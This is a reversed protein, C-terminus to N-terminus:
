LMDKIIGVVENYNEKLRRNYNKDIFNDIPMVEKECKEVIEGIPVEIEKGQGFSYNKFGDIITVTEKTTSFTISNMVSSTTFGCGQNNFVLVDEDKGLIIAMGNNYETSDECNYREKLYDKINYVPITLVKKM